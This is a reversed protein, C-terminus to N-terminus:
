RGEDLLGVFFSTMVAQVGLCTALVAPIALRMLQAPEQGGFGSEAWGAFLSAALALGSFTLVGGAVVGREVTFLRRFRRTGKGAPWMGRAVGFLRALIGFGILQCGLLVAMAAFLQTHVGLEVAGLEIPAVSLRLSGLAGAGALAAGPLVFLWKPAWTLLFKLHRWGDRWTRLHPPRSRGDPSLTTPVERVDLGALAAKVVMESAFEMGDAQLALTAVKDRRFGRLGCHFDGVASGTTLRGLASLVPNGLWRHLVPMAGDAIGGKFRNGMVLEGGDRLAAVFPALASFDYSDDADGMIVFRGRAAAIGGKLAAGYGKDPVGVVRAGAANALVQSGDTSGNDAVVVEGVIRHDILFRVSKRVCIAVTEAENLCPMVITLEVDPPSPAQPAPALRAVATM